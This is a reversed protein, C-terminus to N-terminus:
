EKDEYKLVGSKYEVMEVGVIDMLPIQEGTNNAITVQCEDAKRIARLCKVMLGPSSTQIQEGGEIEVKFTDGHFFVYTLKHRKMEEFLEDM